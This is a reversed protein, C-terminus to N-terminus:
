NPSSVTYIAFRKADFLENEATPVELLKYGLLNDSVALVETVTYLQTESVKFDDLNTTNHMRVTFPVQPVQIRTQM